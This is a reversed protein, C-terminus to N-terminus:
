GGTQYALSQKSPARDFQRTLWARVPEDYALLALWAAGCSLALTLLIAAAPPVQDPLARHVVLLVPWHVLYLPYSLRELFLLRPSVRAKVGLAVVLPLGVIVAFAQYPGIYHTSISMFAVLLAPAAIGSVRPLRGRHRHLMAGFLFPYAIRLMGKPVGAAAGVGFTSTVQGALLVCVCLVLGSIIVGPALLRPLVKITLAFAVSAALEYLLSWMPVNLPFALFGGIRPLLLLSMAADQWAAERSIFLHALFGAAVGLVIMPYLRILRKRIFPWFSLRGSQLREGYAHAVVFGSLCFFFDVALGTNQAPYGGLLESAHGLVVGLAAIGRMADLLEFREQTL